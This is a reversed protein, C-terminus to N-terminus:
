FSVNLGLSFVRPIPYHYDGRDFSDREPDFGEYKSSVITFVDTANLYIYLKQLFLSRAIDKPVNYGIQINKLKFWSMDCSWFSSEQRHWDADLTVLPIENNKNEPTWAGEWKKTITGGSVGLPITWDNRFYGKVGAIGSFQVNLDFGKWSLNGNIGYTFKPITNGIEEKDRYDLKGDGNVDKYRIYGAKPKFSNNKMHTAGEEDTQYIGEQIFGYLTKYSYGERILFLQDPSKGGRFKTVKNDVYTLNAGISYSLGSAKDQDQWNIGLEMGTNKMKGVNEFPAGMNGLVSPIPLQVIIDTTLRQFYDAELNLRNNLFGMDFGFDTSTTTEWTINPDVLATIAAGPVLTNNFNYSNPYDQTIVTLYPFYNANSPNATNGINQNGLKGWSARLKLNSFLDLNKIFREEGLRWGASFSPFVGWRHGKAFRSSADARLNVEALYKGNLAYNIRGFWSMMRWMYKNGDAFPNKTGSAVQHLEPKSPDTKKTKTYRRTTAEQQYGLLLSVDHIKNLVRNYNLNTFFTSYYEDVMIRSIELTSPYDLPKTPNSRNLDTYCTALQNYNDINRHWYQGSYHASLTLGEFLHLTAYVNGKLFNTTTENKGNYLDPFPNRTDVIPLGAKPGSLYLAQTGGYTKGDQLYPTSFPHGNSMMYFVREIGSTYDGDYDVFPQNSVTRMVRGRGGFTLWEGVKAESNISLNYRESDTNKITGNNKLYGMSLYSNSKKGGFTASVNHQTTFANRFVEDFYNTSPYKYPDNGSAFADIVDQPFLPDGGENTVAKNWLQMYHPSDTILDYKRGLQQMGFYGNYNIHVQEGEGKKTEILVVGNAARSGYIAASAADKLVTISAIDSPNVDSMRGEVGDILIMPDTNNLTGYGRVRITAGDAGPAGSNQSAWVGSVKGSLAQSPDTIPRNELEQNYKVTSVSGTLNAKKQVGYGVVVVEELAKTDERLIVDIVDKGATSVTQEIYGIYSVHLTAGGSIELTFRGDIDTVTGNTTGAEVVNAGIVPEGQADTIRGSVSRRDAVQRLGSHGTGAKEKHTIVIYKDVLKYNMDTNRFLQDLIEPLEKEGIRINLRSETDVIARNYFFRYESQKEIERFVDPLTVNELALNIKANQSHTVDAQLVPSVSLMVIATLGIKLCLKRLTRLFHGKRYNLANEM